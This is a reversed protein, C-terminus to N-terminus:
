FRVEECGMGNGTSRPLMEDADTHLIEERKGLPRTDSSSGGQLILSSVMEYLRGIHRM